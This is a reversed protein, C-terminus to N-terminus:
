NFNILNFFFELVYFANLFSIYMRKNNIKYFLKVINQKMAITSNKLDNFFIFKSFTTYFIFTEYTTNFAFRTWFEICSKVFCLAWSRWFKLILSSTFKTNKKEDDIKSNFREDDDDNDNRRKRKNNRDDWEESSQDRDRKLNLQKRHENTTYYKKEYIICMKVIIIVVNKIKLRSNLQIKDFFSNSVFIIVIM